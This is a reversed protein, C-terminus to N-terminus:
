PVKTRFKQSKVRPAEELFAMMLPLKKPMGSFMNNKPAITTTKVPVWNEMLPLTMVEGESTTPAMGLVKKNNSAEAAKSTSVM